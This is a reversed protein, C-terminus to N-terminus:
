SGSWLRCSAPWHDAPQSRRLPGGARPGAPSRCWRLPRARPRDPRGCLPPSPRPLSTCRRTWSTFTGAFRTCVQTRQRVLDRRFDSLLKVERSAGDLSAVPLDPHRLAAWAVAEADIPDSKGRDRGARRADAMLRTPVRVVRQGAALMVPLTAVIFYAAAEVVGSRRRAEVSPSVVVRLRGEAEEALARLAVALGSQSLVAPYVGRALLRLDAHAVTLRARAAMLLRRAAGEDGHALEASAEALLAALGVLPERLGSSLQIKLRRREREVTTLFESRSAELEDIRMRLREVADAHELGVRAAALAADVVLPDVKGQPLESCEPRM